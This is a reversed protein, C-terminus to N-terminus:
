PRASSLSGNEFTNSLGSISGPTIKVFRALLLTSTMPHFIILTTFVYVCSWTLLSTYVSCDAKVLVLVGAKQILHGIYVCCYQMMVIKATASLPLLEPIQKIFCSIQHWWNFTICTMLKKFHNKPVVLLLIVYDHLFLCIVSKNWLLYFSLFIYNRSFDGASWALAERIMSETSQGWFPLSRNCKKGCHDCETKGFVGCFDWSGKLLWQASSTKHKRRVAM